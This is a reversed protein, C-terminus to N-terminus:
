EKIMVFGEDRSMGAAVVAALVNKIGVVSFFEQSLAFLSTLLRQEQSKQTKTGRGFKVAPFELFLPQMGRM